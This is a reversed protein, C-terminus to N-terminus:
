LVMATYNKRLDVPKRELLYRVRGTKGDDDLGRELRFRQVEKKPGQMRAQLLLLSSTFHSSAGASEVSSVPGENENVNRM